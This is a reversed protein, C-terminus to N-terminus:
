GNVRKRLVVVAAAVSILAVAAIAAVSADSTEPIDKPPEPRAPATTNVTNVTGVKIEKATTDAGTVTVEKSDAAVFAAASIAVKANTGVTMTVDTAEARLICATGSADFSGGTINVAGAVRINFLNTNADGVVKFNGGTINIEDCRTQNCFIGQSGGAATNGVKIYFDGGSITASKIEKLFIAHARNTKETPNVTLYFKGSSIELVDTDDKNGDAQLSVFSTGTAAATLDSVITANGSIKLSSGRVTGGWNVLAAAKHWIFANDKIIVEGNKTDGQNIVWSNGESVITANGDVIIKAGAVAANTMAFATAGGAGTFPKITVFVNDGLEINGARSEIMNGSGTLTWPKQPDFILPYDKGNSANLVGHWGTGTNIDAAIDGYIVIAGFGARITNGGGTLVSGDPSTVITHAKDPIADAIKTLTGDVMEWYEHTQIQGAFAGKEIIVKLGGNANITLANAKTDEKGAETAKTVLTAAVGKLTLVGGDFSITGALTVSQTEKKDEAVLAVDKFLDALKVDTVKESIVVAKGNVRVSVKTAKTAEAWYKNAQEEGWTTEAASASFVFMGACLSLVMMVSLVIALTKKM